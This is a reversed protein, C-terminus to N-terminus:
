GIVSSSSKIPEAKACALGFEKRFKEKWVTISLQGQYFIINNRILWLAWCCAILVESFIKREFNTRAQIVMPIGPRSHGNTDWTIGLLNWCTQSFPCEFFLHFCMEEQEANCLVCDYDNLFM